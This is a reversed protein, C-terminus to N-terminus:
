QSGVLANTSRSLMSPVACDLFCEMTERAGRWLWRTVEPLLKRKLSIDRAPRGRTSTAEMVGFRAGQTCGLIRNRFFYNSGCVVLTTVGSDRPDQTHATQCLPGPAM